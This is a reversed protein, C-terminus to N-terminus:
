RTCTQRPPCWHRRPPRPARWSDPTGTRDKEGWAIHGGLAGVTRRGVREGGRGPCQLYALRKFGANCTLHPAAVVGEM